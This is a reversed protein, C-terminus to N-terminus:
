SGVGVLWPADSRRYVCMRTWAFRLILQGQVLVSWACVLVEQRAIYGKSSLCRWVANTRSATSSSMSGGILCKAQSRKHPKLAGCPSLEKGLQSIRGTGSASAPLGASRLGVPVYVGEVLPAVHSSSSRPNYQKSLAWVIRARMRGAPICLRDFM